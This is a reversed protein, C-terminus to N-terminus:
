TTKSPGHYSHSALTGPHVCLTDRSGVGNSAHCSVRQLCTTAYLQEPMVRSLYESITLFNHDHATYPQAPTTVYDPVLYEHCELMQAMLTLPLSAVDENLSPAILEVKFFPDPEFKYAHVLLPQEQWEIGRTVIPHQKSHCKMRTSIQQELKRWKAGNSQWHPSQDWCPVGNLANRLHEVANNEVRYMRYIQLINGVDHIAAVKENRQCVSRYGDIELLYAHLASALADTADHEAATSIIEARM